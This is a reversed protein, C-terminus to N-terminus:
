AQQEQGRQALALQHQHLRAYYGGHRLLESHTGDEVIKGRHMVIIRDADRITSLRHAIVVSTRTHLIRHLAEQILAETATDISSTAEDLVLVGEPSLAIARALALLQRQGISLNTGGPLVKYEYTDPLQEIFRAANSIEAARRIDADSIDQRYLRINTAITGALCVPDQPVVAVSRRLAELKMRKIDIGDLLVQGQQPDYLRALLGVMSSKGAGTAGVIAINQGAPITLSLDRLVPEDAIYAFSVNRMEIAGRVRPLEVPKHPTLVSPATQLMRQVREAAGLGIQVSNYEESLRLVPQFARETYQVFAVLTGLTAWGALVGRGGGYLVAATGFAALVEQVALFVASNRRLVLLAQRYGMNYGDFEDVSAPQRGFLQVLTMGHLQENLFGSIRALATREGTSSGRIRRRFYRTVLMLVPLVALALLALRWNVAFMVGVIAILTVSETLIIVVSSSLLQNLADIDSTLRTVLDGTPIRGFFDQSQRLIHDFLRTRLDALGRQGAQQLFFTQIYQLVFAGIAAGGYMVALPILAAKDRQAIPGDIARQLLYPPVVNFAATALLMLLALLLPKWHPRMTTVMLGFLAADQNLAPSKDPPKSPQKTTM